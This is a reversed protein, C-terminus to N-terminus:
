TKGNNNFFNLVNDITTDAVDANNIENRRALNTLGTIPAESITRLIEFEEVNLLIRLM